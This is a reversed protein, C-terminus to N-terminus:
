DHGLAALAARMALKLDGEIALQLNMFAAQLDTRGSRLDRYTSESMRVRADPEDPIPKAGFHARLAFGGEGSIEIQILGNVCAFAEISRRTLKLDGSLGALGGLAGLASDGVEGALMEFARRDQMLTVFPPHAPSDEGHMEGHDINLYFTGGQEGEVDIRITADVARMERYIADGGAGSTRQAELARNFQDPVREAYFARPDLASSM